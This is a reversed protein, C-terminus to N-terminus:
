GRRRAGSRLSLASKRITRSATKKVSRGVRSTPRPTRESSFVRVEEAEQTKRPRRGAATKKLVIGQAALKKPTHPGEKKRKEARAPEGAEVAYRQQPGVRYVILTKGLHHVAECALEACIRALMEEREDREQGSARIKILEHAKLALDIEKLVPLTLGQDGILVVPRLPHAAARLERRARSTLTTINM